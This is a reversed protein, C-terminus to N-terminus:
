YVCGFPMFLIRCLCYQYGFSDKRTYENMCRWELKGEAEGYKQVYVMGDPIYEVGDIKVSYLRMEGEPKIQGIDMPNVGTDIYEHEAM